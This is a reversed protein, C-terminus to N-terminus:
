RNLNKGYNAPPFSWAKSYAMATLQELSLPPQPRRPEAFKQPGATNSSTLSIARRDPYELVVTNYVRGDDKAQYTRLFTGDPRVKCNQTPPVNECSPQYKVTEIGSVELWTKGQKDVVVLGAGIFDDGWTNEGVAVFGSPLLETLTKLTGAPTAPGPKRAPTSSTASPTPATFGAVPPQEARSGVNAQVAAVGGATLAVAATATLVSVVRGRRRLVAGRRMGREILDPRHPELTETAQRMLRPLRDDTEM